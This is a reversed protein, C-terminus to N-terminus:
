EIEKFVHWVMTQKYAGLEHLVQCTGIYHHRLMENQIPQGTAVVYFTCLALRATPDVLAWLVIEKGQVQCSLIGSGEPMQVLVQDSQSGLSGLGYRWIKKTM